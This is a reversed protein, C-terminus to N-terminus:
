LRCILSVNDCESAEDFISDISETVGLNQSVIITDYKEDM